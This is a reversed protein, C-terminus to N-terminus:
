AFHRKGRARRTQFVRVTPQVRKILQQFSRDM